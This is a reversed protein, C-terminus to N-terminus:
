PVVQRSSLWCVITGLFLVVSMCFLVAFVNAGFDSLTEAAIRFLNRMDIGEKYLYWPTGLVYRRMRISIM